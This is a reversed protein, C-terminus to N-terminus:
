KVPPSPFFCDAPPCASPPAPRPGAAAPPRAPRLGGGAAQRPLRDGGARETRAQRAASHSDPLCPFSCARERGARREREADPAAPRPALGAASGPEASAQGGSGGRGRRPERGARGGSGRRPRRLLAPPAPPGETDEEASGPPQLWFPAPRPDPTFFFFFFFFAAVVVATLLGHFLYRPIEQRGGARGPGRHRAAPNRNPLRAPPPRPAAAPTSGPRSFPGPVAPRGRLVPRPPSRPEPSRSGPVPTDTTRM